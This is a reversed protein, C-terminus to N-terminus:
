LAVAKDIHTKVLSKNQRNKGVPLLELYFFGQKVM